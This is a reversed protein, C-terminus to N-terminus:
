RFGLIVLQLSGNLAFVDFMWLKTHGNGRQPCWELYKLELKTFDYWPSGAASEGFHGSIYFRPDPDTIKEFPTAPWVSPIINM